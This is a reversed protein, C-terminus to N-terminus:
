LLLHAIQGLAISADNTPNQRNIYFKISNQKFLNIVKELLAKNQFVGGALLIESDEKVCIDCILNALGNIFATIATAKEDKLAGEFANKFCIKDDIINFDYSVDLSDDYFKEMKMGAEGEYSVSDLGLVISCFADFIRGVSSTAVCSSGNEYLKKLNSLKKSDFRSLFEGANSELDYKLIISLAIQNINKISSEAGILMFEDFKLVREYGNKDLRMVEGGWIKGDDGYGTGDFCFGLYRKSVDLDNEFMVSLLHAYHHQIQTIKCGQEKAWKLNLFHPHLDAVIEDFKLEYTQKFLEILNLFREFTAINKLDGIYPSIMIEGNKYIAFQNKLEAGVALITREDKLSTHIFKPNVGRSTRLFIPEDDAVFVISDDSPSYIERDNDLYFDIVGGLKDLLDKENYIIPEGSINASTAIIANQLFSFLLLHLGTNPLFIGIKNLEPALNLPLSNPKPNLIVIPKLNSTLIKEEAQSIFALEKAMKIDKCMIAFPKSPRTKRERLTKISDYNASDCVLHFGGLGKIALIKGEKILEAARCVSEDGEKIVSGNKDKLVLKPGCKPCSIPQAHYRRDLPNKYEDQCSQCMVFKSMTTNPRDYPLAKIISFRPGCNTCNIFPYHYRANAPDFFERECDSCLAFDPLIPAHKTASRSAIISFESFSKDFLEVKEFEDIRALAPLRAFLADEFSKIDSIEGFLTLKVGEDDNFVEGFLEFELALNYVFPRFGVGQVLGSIKYYFCKKM